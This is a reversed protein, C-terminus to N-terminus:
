IIVPHTAIFHIGLMLNYFANSMIIVIFVLELLIINIQLKLYAVIYKNKFYSILKDRYLLIIVNILFAIFLVIICICLIFLGIAIGHIQQALLENSYDVKVPSLMKVFYDFIPKIKLDIFDTINSNLNNSVFSSNFDCNNILKSVSEGSNSSNPPNIERILLRVQNSARDWFINSNNYHERIYTPDNIANQFFRASLDVGIAGVVTFARGPGSRAAVYRLGATGYIFVSRISEAWTGNSHVIQTTRTNNSNNVNNNESM